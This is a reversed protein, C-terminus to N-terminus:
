GRSPVRGDMFKIWARVTILSPIRMRMLLKLYDAFSRAPCASGGGNV